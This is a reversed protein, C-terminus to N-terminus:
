SSNLYDPTRGMMGGSQDAWAKMMQRRRTLDDKTRPQLFSLGFREGSSAKYTMAESTAPSTQMEYLRAISQAIGKFARHSSVSGTIKEDGYWVERPTADM